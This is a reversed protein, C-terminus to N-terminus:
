EALGKLACDRADTFFALDLNSLVDPPIAALDRANSAPLLVRKAGNERALQLCEGLMTIPQMMGHITMEALVVTAATVPRGVLASLILLSDGDALPTAPDTLFERGNRSIRWHRTPTGDLLVDPSLGTCLALAEALAEALTVARVEVSDTGARLRAVDYFEVLIAPKM